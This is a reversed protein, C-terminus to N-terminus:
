SRPSSTHASGLNFVRDFFISTTLLLPLTVSVLLASVFESLWRVLQAQRRSFTDFSRAAGGLARTSSYTRQPLQAPDHHPVCRQEARKPPMAGSSTSGGFGTWGNAKAAEGLKGPARERRQGRHARRAGVVSYGCPAGTICGAVCRQSAAQTHVTHLESRWRFCAHKMACPTGLITFSEASMITSSRRRWSKYVAPLNSQFDVVVVSTATSPLVYFLLFEM